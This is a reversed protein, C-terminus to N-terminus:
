RRQGYYNREGDLRDFSREGCLRGRKWWRIRKTRIRVHQIARLSYGVCDYFTEHDNGQKLSWPYSAMYTNHELGDEAVSAALSNVNELALISWCDDGM